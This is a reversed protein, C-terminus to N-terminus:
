HGRTPSAYKVIKKWDEEVEQIEKDAETVWTSYDVIGPTSSKIQRRLNGFLKKVEANCLKILEPRRAFEVKNFDLDEVAYTVEAMGGKNSYFRAYYHSNGNDDTKLIKDIQYRTTYNIVAQTAARGLLFNSANNVQTRPAYMGYYNGTIGAGIGGGYSYMAEDMYRWMIHSVNGMGGYNGVGQQISFGIIDYAGDPFPEEQVDGTVSYTKVIERPFWKYYRELAPRIALNIIQEKTYELEDDNIFPAGLSRICLEYDDDSIKVSTPYTQNIKGDETEETFPIFSEDIPETIENLEQSSLLIVFNPDIIENGFSIDGLADMIQVEPWKLEGIFNNRCFLLSGKISSDVSLKYVLNASYVKTNSNIINSGLVAWTDRIRRNSYGKIIEERLM